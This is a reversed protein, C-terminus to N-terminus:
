DRKLTVKESAAALVGATLVKSGAIAKGRVMETEGFTMLMRTRDLEAELEEDTM